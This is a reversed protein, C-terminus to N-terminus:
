KAHKLLMTDINNHDIFKVRVTDAEYTLQDRPFCSSVILKTKVPFYTAHIEENPTFINDGPLVSFYKINENYLSKYFYDIKGELVYMYHFDKKHYHNSRISGPNCTIISVNSVEKDVISLIDGRTDIDRIQNKILKSEKPQNM